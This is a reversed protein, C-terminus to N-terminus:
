ISFIVIGTVILGLGLLKRSSLREKLILIGMASVLIYSLSEILVSWSLPLTRLSLMTLITSILMLIYGAIVYPNVYERLIDAWKKKASLKLLIQACSAVSVSCIMLGVAKTIENM